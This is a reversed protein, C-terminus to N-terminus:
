DDGSRYISLPMGEEILRRIAASRTVRDRKALEDLADVLPQPLRATVIPDRGTPKRGRVPQIARRLNDVPKDVIRDM